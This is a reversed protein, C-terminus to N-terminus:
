NKIPLPCNCIITVPGEEASISNGMFTGFLPINPEVIDPQASKPVPIIKVDTTVNSM